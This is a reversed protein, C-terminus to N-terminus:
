GIPVWTGEDWGEESLVGVIRTDCRKELSMKRRPGDDGAWVNSPCNM